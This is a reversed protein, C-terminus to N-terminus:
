ASESVSGIPRGISSYTLGASRMEAPNYVNRLDVVVPKGMLAKIRRPDLARFENWETLLLLCDAGSM